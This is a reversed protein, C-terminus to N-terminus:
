FVGCPVTFEDPYKKDPHVYILSIEFATKQSFESLNSSNIDYSFGLDWEKYGLGIIGVYADKLRTEAGLLVRYDVGIPKIVNLGVLTNQVKSTSLYMIHPRLIFQPLIFDVTGHVASRFPLSFGDGVVAQDPQNVHFASYGLTPRIKNFKKTWFFGANLDLYSSNGDISSEGTSLDDNFEGLAYDWQGPYYGSSIGSQYSTLGGQIGFGFRHGHFEKRYAMSILLKNIAYGASSVRDDMIILGVGIEDKFRHFKFEGAFFSTQIPAGVQAWQNRHNLTVKMDGNMHGTLGPNLSLASTYYQSLHVDQASAALVFFSCFLVLLKKM